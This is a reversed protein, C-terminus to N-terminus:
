RRRAPGHAEVRRQRSTFSYDLWNADPTIRLASGDTWRMKVYGGHRTLSGGHALTEEVDTASVAAGNVMLFNPERAYVGVRDGNVNAAVAITFTVDSGATTPGQRTQIELKGDASKLM